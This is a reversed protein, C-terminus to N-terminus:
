LRLGSASASTSASCTTSWSSRTGQCRASAPNHPFTPYYDHPTNKMSYAIDGPLADM